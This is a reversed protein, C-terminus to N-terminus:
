SWTMSPWSCHTSDDAVGSAFLRFGNQDLTQAPQFVAPVVAGSQGRKGAVVQVQAFARAADGVEGIKEALFRGRAAVADAVRAPRCVARGVIAIGVRMEAAVASHGDDM